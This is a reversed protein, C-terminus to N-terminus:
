GRQSGSAVKSLYEYIAFVEELGQEYASAELRPRSGSGEAVACAAEQLAEANEKPILRVGEPRMGNDSAIVPTGLWLAERVSVADGDYLTTRWLATCKEIARLTGGHAVDGALLIHDRVPSAAIKARLEAELSGSGIIVLGAGPLRERVAAMVAIQLGLDYEPELLGVSLFVPGHTKYFGGLKEPLEASMASPDFSDPRITSVREPKVGYKGMLTALEGNVAIVHDFQRLVFGLASWKRAALGEPSSPFGGSHFTMVTRRGPFWCCFLSLAMVRLPYIGGVHLHVIQYPLRALLRLTALPGQPFYLDEREPQKHRTINVVGSAYGRKQLYKRIAVLNSQVGGHPPPYPGLQLVRM